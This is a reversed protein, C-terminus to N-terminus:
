INEKLKNNVKLPLPLNKVVDAISPLASILPSQSCCGNRSCLQFLLLLIPLLPSFDLIM